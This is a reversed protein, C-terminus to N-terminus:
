PLEEIRTVGPLVNGMGQDFSAIRKHPTASTLVLHYADAFSLRRFTTWLELADLAHRKTALRIGDLSLLVALGQALEAREAKYWSTMAFITEFIVTDSTDAALRGKEIADIIRIAIPTHEAHDGALDRVFINTDLFLSSEM